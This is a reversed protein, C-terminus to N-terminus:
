NLICKLANKFCDCDNEKVDKDIYGDTTYLRISVLKKSLISKKNEETFDYNMFGIYRTMQTSGAIDSIVYASNFLDVTTGDDFLLILKANASVAFLSLSNYRVRFWVLSDSKHGEVCINSGSWKDRWIINPETVLVKKHTFKDVENQQYKCKQAFLNTAILAVIVLFFVKKM